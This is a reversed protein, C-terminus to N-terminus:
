NLQKKFCMSTKVSKYAGYNPIIRYNNKRYLAVADRMTGDTELVCSLFQLEKAWIELERLIRTGLQKGREEPKVYMRKIEVSTTDEEFDKFAGCGIPNENHYCVIVHQLTTIVNFQKYFDDAEGNVVSLYTDLETVLQIFDPDKGTTRKFTITSAMIEYIPTRQIQNIAM